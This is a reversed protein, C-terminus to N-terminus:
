RIPIQTQEPLRCTTAPSLCCKEIQLSTQTSIIIITSAEGGSNVLWWWRTDVRLLRLGESLGSEFVIMPWDIEKNRSPASDGEKSTPGVPRLLILLNTDTHHTMWGDISESQQGNTVNLFVLYHENTRGAQM